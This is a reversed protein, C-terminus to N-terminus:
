PVCLFHCFSYSSVLYKTSHIWSVTLIYFLLMWLLYIYMPPTFSGLSFIWFMVGSFVITSLSTSFHEKFFSVSWLEFVPYIITCPYWTLDYKIPIIPSTPSSSSFLFSYPLCLSPFSVSFHLDNTETVKLLRSLIIKPM